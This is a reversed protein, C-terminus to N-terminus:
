YNIYWNDNKAAADVIAWIWIGSCALPMFALLIWFLFFTREQSSTLVTNYGFMASPIAIVMYVVFACFIAFTIFYVTLGIWFKMSDKKYTYVWTWFGLFVALLIAALKSNGKKKVGSISTLQAGCAACFNATESVERGCNQCFAM